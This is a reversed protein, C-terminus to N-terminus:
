EIESSLFYKKKDPYMSLLMSCQIKQRMRTILTNGTNSLQIYLVHM